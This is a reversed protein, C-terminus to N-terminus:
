LLKSCGTISGGAFICGKEMLIFVWAHLFCWVTGLRTRSFALLPGFVWFTATSFLGPFILLQCRFECFPFDWSYCIQTHDPKVICSGSASSVHLYALYSKAKLLSSPFHTGNEWSRSSHLGAVWIRLSPPQILCLHDSYVAAKLSPVCDRRLEAYSQFSHAQFAGNAQHIHCRPLFPPFTSRISLVFLYFTDTM